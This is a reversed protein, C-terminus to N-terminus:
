QVGGGRGELIGEEVTPGEGESDVKRLDRLCCSMSVEMSSKMERSLRRCILLERGHAIAVM